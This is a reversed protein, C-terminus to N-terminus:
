VCIIMKLKCMGLCGCIVLLRKFKLPGGLFKICSKAVDFHAHQNYDNSVLHKIINGLNYPREELRGYVMTKTVPTSKM